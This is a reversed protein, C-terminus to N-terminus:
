KKLAYVYAEVTDGSALRVATPTRIYADGEFADLAAWHVALEDSSFMLGEITEGHILTSVLFAWRPAGAKKV